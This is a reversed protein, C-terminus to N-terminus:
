QSFTKNTVYFNSTGYRVYRLPSEHILGIWTQNLFRHRPLSQLKFIHLIVANSENLRSRNYTYECNSYECTKIAQSFARLSQPINFINWGLVLKRDKSVVQRETTSNTFNIKRFLRSGGAKPFKLNTIKNINKSNLFIFLVFNLLIISVGFALKKIM